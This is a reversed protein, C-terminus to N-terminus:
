GTRAAYGRRGPRRGAPERGMITKTSALQRGREGDPQPPREADLSVGHAVEAQPLRLIRADERGSARRAGDHEGPVAVEQIQEGPM